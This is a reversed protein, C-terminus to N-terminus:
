RGGGTGDSSSAMEVDIDEDKAFGDDLPAGVQVTSLQVQELPADGVHPAVGNRSRARFFLLLMVVLTLVVLGVIVTIAAVVGVAAATNTGSSSPAPWPSPPPARWSAFDFGAM